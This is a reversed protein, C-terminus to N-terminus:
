LIITEIDAKCFIYLCINYGIYARLARDFKLVCDYMEEKIFDSKM